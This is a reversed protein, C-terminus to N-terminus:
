PFNLWWILMKVLEKKSASFSFFKWRCKNRKEADALQIVQHFLSVILCGDFDKLTAVGIVTGV